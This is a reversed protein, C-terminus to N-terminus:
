TFNKFIDRVKDRNSKEDGSGLNKSANDSQAKSLLEQTKKLETKLKEIEDSSKDDSADDGNDSPGDPKPKNEQNDPQSKGADDSSLRILEDVDSVSYGNKALEIVSEGDIGADAFKKIEDPKFGMTGLKINTLLGM